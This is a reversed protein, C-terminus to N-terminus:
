AAGVHLDPILKKLFDDSPIAASAEKSTGDDGGMPSGTPEAGGAGGAPPPAEPGGPQGQGSMKSELESLFQQAVEPPLQGSQVLQQVVEVIEEMSMPGEESGPLQGGAAAPDGGAPAGGPPAGAAAQEMMAADAAGQKYFAQLTPDEIRSLQHVHANSTKIVQNRVAEPLMRLEEDLNNIETQMAANAVKEMEVRANAAKVLETHMATAGQMLQNAVEIGAQKELYNAAITRGEETSLFASALKIHYDDTLALPVEAAATASKAAPAAAAPAAPATVPAGITTSAGKMWESVKSAVATVRAIRASKEGGGPIPLEDPRTTTSPSVGKGQGVGSASDTVGDPVGGATNEPRSGNPLMLKSPDTGDSDAPVSTTGKDRPDAPIAGAKKATAKKQFADVRAFLETYSGKFNTSM